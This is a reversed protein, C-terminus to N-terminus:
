PRREPPPAPPRLEQAPGPRYAYPGDFSQGPGSQAAGPPSQPQYGEWRPSSGFSAGSLLASVIQALGVFLPVLGGLLWPGPHLSMGFPGGDHYGIFSLGITLALGIFAVKIGKHLTVQAAQQPAGAYAGPGSPSQARVARWDAKGLPPAMGHRIMEMRERHAMWRWVVFAACPFGFIILIALISAADDSSGDM